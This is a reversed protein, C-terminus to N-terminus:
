PCGPQADVHEFSLEELDLPLPGVSLLTALRDVELDDAGTIQGRGDEIPSQIVPASLVQGDLVRAFQAGINNRTYEAFIQAGNPKLEFELARNGGADVTPRVGQLEEGGFLSPLGPLIPNGREVGDLEPPIPVFELRGTPGILGRVEEPEAPASLEVVLRDDPSVEVAFEVLGYRAIRAEIIRVAQNVQEATVHEGASPLLRYEARVGVWCDATPAPEAGCAAAALLIWALLLGQRAPSKPSMVGGM